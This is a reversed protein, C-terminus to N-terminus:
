NAAVIRAEKNSISVSKLMKEADSLSNYTGYAVLHKNNETGAYEAGFGRKVMKAVYRSAAKKSGFTAAIVRYSSANAKLPKVAEFTKNMEASPVADTKVVIANTAEDAVYLSIFEKSFKDSLVDEREYGKNIWGNNFTRASYVAGTKISFPNLEQAIMKGSNLAGNQIPLWMMLGVAVAAAAYKAVRKVPLTRVKTAVPGEASVLNKAKYINDQEIPKASISRLGFFDDQIEPFDVADFLIAEEVSKRLTGIGSIEVEKENELIFKLESIADTLWSDAEHYALEQEVAIATILQGDNHSLRSNFVITNKPPHIRNRDNDLKASTQDKVFGGFGPLVVLPQENLQNLIIHGLENILM